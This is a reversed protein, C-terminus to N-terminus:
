STGPEERVRTWTMRVAYPQGDRDLIEVRRRVESGRAVQLADAVDDPAAVLEGADGGSVFMGQTTASILGEDRLQKVAKQVTSPTVGWEVALDRVSPLRDGPRLEGKAIAARYYSAVQVFPPPVRETRPV